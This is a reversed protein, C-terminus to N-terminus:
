QLPVLITYSLGEVNKMATFVNRQNTKEDFMEIDLDQNNVVDLVPNEKYNRYMALRGTRVSLFGKRDNLILRAKDLGRGVGIGNPKSTVGNKFCSLVVKSEEQISLDNKDSRFSRFIGPGSDFVSIELLHLTSKNERLSEIYTAIPNNKGCISSSSQGKAILHTDLVVGRVSRQSVGRTFDAKAHQDTNDILEALLEGIGIYDTVTLSSNKWVNKFYSQLIEFYYSATQPIKRGNELAYFCEPWAFREISHDIAFMQIQRGKQFVPVDFRSVLSRSLLKKIPQKKDGFVDNAMLLATVCIPSEIIDTKNSENEPDVWSFNIDTSYRKEQTIFYQSLRSTVGLRLSKFGNPVRLPQGSGHSSYLDEVEEVSTDKSVLKLAKM